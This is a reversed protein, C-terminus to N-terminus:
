KNCFTIIDKLTLFSSPHTVGSIHNTYTQLQAFLNPNLYKLVDSASSYGWSNGSMIGNDTTQHPYDWETLGDLQRFLPYTHDSSSPTGNWIGNIDLGNINAITMCMEKQRLANILPHPYISQIDIRTPEAIAVPFLGERHFDAEGDTSPAYNTDIVMAKRPSIPIVNQYDINKCCVGNGDRVITTSLTTSQGMAEDTRYRTPSFRSITINGRESQIGNYTM